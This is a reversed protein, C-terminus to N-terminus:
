RGGSLAYLMYCGKRYLVYLAYPRDGAPVSRLVPHSTGFLTPISGIQELPWKYAEPQNSETWCRPEGTCWPVQQCPDTSLWTRGMVHIRGPLGHPLPLAFGYDNCLSPLCTGVMFLLIAILLSAVLWRRARRSLRPAPEDTDLYTATVSRPM